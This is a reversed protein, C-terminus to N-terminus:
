ALRLTRYRVLTLLHRVLLYASSKRMLTEMRSSLLSQYGKGWSPDRTIHPNVGQFPGNVIGNLGELHTPMDNPVRVVFHVKM